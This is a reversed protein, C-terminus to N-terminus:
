EVFVEGLSAATVLREGWRVLEDETAAAIRELVPEPVPGFKAAFQRVLLKRQGELVGRRVGREELREAATVVAEKIKPGVRTSLAAGIEEASAESVALIYAIAMSRDEDDRLGDLLDGVTELFGLFREVEDRAHRLLLLALTGLLGVERERLAADSQSSLDDLIFEFSPM